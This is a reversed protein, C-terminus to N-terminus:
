CRLYFNMGHTEYSERYIPKLRKIIRYAEVGFRQLTQWAWAPAVATKHIAFSAVSVFFGLSREICLIVFAILGSITRYFYSRSM